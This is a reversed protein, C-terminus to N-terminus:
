INGHLPTQMFSVSDKFQLAQGHQRICAMAKNGRVGM